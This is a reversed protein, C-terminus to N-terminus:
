KQFGILIEYNQANFNNKTHFTFQFKEEQIIFRADKDFAFILKEIKKELIKGEPDVLAFFIPISYTTEALDTQKLALEIKGKVSVSNDKFICKGSFDGFEAKYDKTTVTNLNQVIGINPCALGSYEKTACATFLLLTTLITFIYRM